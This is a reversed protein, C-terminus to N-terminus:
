ASASCATRTPGCSATTATTSAISSICGASGAPRISITRIARRGCCAASRPRCCSTARAAAPLPLPRHPTREPGPRVLARHRFLPHRQGLRRRADARCRGRQGQRVPRRPGRRRLRTPHARRRHPRPAANATPDMGFGGQDNHATQSARIPAKPHGAEAPRLAGQQTRGHRELKTVDTALQEVHAYDRLALARSLRGDSVVIVRDAAEFVELVETCYM